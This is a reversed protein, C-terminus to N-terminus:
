ESASSDGGTGETAVRRLPLALPPHQYVIAGADLNRRWKMVEGKQQAPPQEPRFLQTKDTIRRL